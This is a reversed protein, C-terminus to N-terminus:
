NRLAFRVHIALLSSLGVLAGWAIGCFFFFVSVDSFNLQHSGTRAISDQSGMAAAICAILDPATCALAVASTLFGYVMLLFFFKHNSFGICNNIWPCHHDM